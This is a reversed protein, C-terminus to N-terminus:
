KGHKIEGIRFAPHHLTKGSRTPPPANKARDPRPWPGRDDHHRHPKTEGAPPTRDTRPEDSM